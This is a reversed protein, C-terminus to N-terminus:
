APPRSVAIVYLWQAADTGGPGSPHNRMDIIQAGPRDNDTEPRDGKPQWIGAGITGVIAVSRMLTLTPQDEIPQRAAAQRQLWRRLQYRPVVPISWVSGDLGVISRITPLDRIV